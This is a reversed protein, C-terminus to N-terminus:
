NENCSPCILIQHDTCIRRYCKSCTKRTSRDRIRSCFACRAVGGRIVINGQQPAESINLLLKARTKISGPVNDQYIRELILPKVLEFGLTQLFIRRIINENSNNLQHIVLGNIAAINLFNFFLTLPWRRSNRSVDYQRCMRDVIDVGCKTHNYFTIIEPKKADGTTADIAEDHHMTSLLLVTKNRKPVYSVLTCEKQFGFLSSNIQRGQSTKFSTPIEPKNSKLTGVVTIREELLQLAVPYSTFWNDMTVNCGMNILPELLRKTVDAVKNSVRFPGEPQEGCYVEFNYIYPCKTDVVMFIKIGFKAPKNPLYMIFGCRGRFAVLQEDLTMHESPTYYELCRNKMGEIFCRIAALKDIEQRQPRDRIDDFRLSRLLFRFRNISMTLYVLEFGTGNSNDWFDRLNQRGSRNAGIVILLGVFARMETLNTPKADRERQYKTKITNIYINTCNVLSEFVDPDLFLEFCQLLTSANCATGKPGLPKQIINHSRVRTAPFPHKRWETENRSKYTAFDALPVSDDSDSNNQGSIEDNEDDEQETDTGHPSHIINEEERLDEEEESVILDDQDSEEELWRLMNEEMKRDM